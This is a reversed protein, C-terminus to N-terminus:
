PASSEGTSYANSNQVEVVDSDRHVLIVEGTITDRGQYAQPFETLRILDSRPDFDARGATAYKLPAKEETKASQAQPQREQILVEEVIQLYSIRRDLDTFFLDAKRGRAILNPQFIRVFRDADKRKPFMRFEATGLKRQIRCEDSEIQTTSPLGSAGAAAGRTPRDAKRLTVTAAQPLQFVQEELSFKLGQSQFFLEESPLSEPNLPMPRGSPAQLPEPLGPQGVVRFRLPIEIWRNKPRYLLYDSKLRYGDPFITEVKGFLELDRTEMSFRSELARVTTIRGQSDFLSAVVSRGHVLKPKQFIDAKAALIKWQKVSGQTAAYQFQELSYDPIEPPLDGIRSQKGVEIFSEPDEPVAVPTQELQSPTLFLVYAVVGVSLSAILLPRFGPRHDTPEKM